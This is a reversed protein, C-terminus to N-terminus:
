AGLETMANVATEKWSMVSGSAQGRPCVEVIARMFNAVTQMNEQEKSTFNADDILYELGRDRAKKEYREMLATKEGKSTDSDQANWLFARSPNWRTFPVVGAFEWDIISTIRATAPDVLINAFHLDKHALRLPINDLKMQLPDSTIIALYRNIQPLIDLMFELNPHIEIAHKYKTLHASIYQTYSTFPGSINVSDFTEGAPWLALIDPEFWFTEELVPGPVIQNDDYFTLGGIHSWTHKHLDANIDILQDLIIDMQTPDFSGYADALSDGPERTMLIYEHQLPNDVSSECAIVRPVPINTEKNLWSLVAVENETKTRSIHNGSVRLILDNANDTQPRVDKILLWSKLDAATYTIVFIIHFEATVRLKRIDQPLPSSLTDLLSRVDDRTIHQPLHIKPSAMDICCLRVTTLAHETLSTAFTSLTHQSSPASTLSARDSSKDPKLYPSRASVELAEIEMSMWKIERRQRAQSCQSIIHQMVFLAERYEGKLYLIKGCAFQRQTDCVDSHHRQSSRELLANWHHQENEGIRLRHNSYCSINITEWPDEPFLGNMFEYGCKWSQQLTAVVDSSSLRKICAFIQAWPHQQGHKEAVKIEVMDCLRDKLIEYLRGMGKTPLLICLDCLVDLLKPDQELLVTEVLEMARDLLIYGQPGYGRDWLEVAVICCKYFDNLNTFSKASARSVLEGADNSTFREEERAAKLYVSIYHCLRATMRMEKSDSLVTFIKTDEQFVMQYSCGHSLYHTQGEQDIRHITLTTDLPDQRDDGGSADSEISGTGAPIIQIYDPQPITINLDRPWTGSVKARQIRRAVEKYPYHKGNFLFIPRSSPMRRHLEQDRIVAALFQVDELTAYKGRKRNRLDAM